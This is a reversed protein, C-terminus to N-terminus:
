GENRLKAEQYAVPDFDPSTRSAMFDVMAPQSDLLSLISGTVKRYVWKFGYFFTGIRRQLPWVTLAETKYDKEIFSALNHYSHTVKKPALYINNGNILMVCPFFEPALTDVGLSFAINDADKVIDVFGLKVAGKYAKALVHM